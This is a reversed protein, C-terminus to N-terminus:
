FRYTLKVRFTRGNQPLAEQVHEPGGPFAYRTDFLNYIGASVDLHPTLKMASLTWNALLYGKIPTGGTSTVGSTAQLELGSVLRQGIVPTILGLKAMQAPSNSLRQGTACDTTHQVAYSLRGKVGGPLRAELEVSGGNTNADSLNDFILLGSSADVHQSILDRIANHFGTVTLRLAPSLEQELDVEYTRSHEPRLGPNAYNTDAMFMSEYVNPARVAQGYLLKLTTKELPHWILGIRPDVSSDSWAFSDYRLGGTLTLSPAIQWEDQVFLGYTSTSTRLRTYVLRPNVDYNMMRLMSDDQFEAGLTLLHHECLKRSLRIEGGWWTASGQDHNINTRQPYAPDRLVPYRGEYVYNNWNVNAHLSWENDFEHDYSLNLTKNQDITFLRPDAFITGFSATPVDKHRSVFTGEFAFDEYNLKLLGSTAQEGDMGRAWGRTPGARAFEKFYLDPGASNYETASLMMSLGSQFVHSYTLREKFSDYSGADASAELGGTDAASRTVVNIVAFFANSGYLASGPGRIVEVREILDVDLPFDALVGVGNFLPENLRHGDVLILVRGGFDGPRSFGRVGVYGYNRDERVYLDRVSRLVEALTRHGYAVIEERTVVTVASPAETEKQEHKAAGYVTPIEIQMIQALSLSKLKQLDAAALFSPLCAACALGLWWAPTTAPPRFFAASIM